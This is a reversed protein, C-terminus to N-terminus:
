CKRQHSSRNKMGSTFDTQRRKPWRAMGDIENTVRLCMWAKPKSIEAQLAPVVIGSVYEHRAHDPTTSLQLINSIAKRLRGNNVTMTLGSKSGNSGKHCYATTKMTSLAFCCCRCSPFRRASSRSTLATTHRSHLLMELAVCWSMFDVQANTTVAPDCVFTLSVSLICFTSFVIGIRSLGFFSPPYVTLLCSHLLVTLVPFSGM